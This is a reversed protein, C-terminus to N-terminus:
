STDTWRGITQYLLKPDIPKTVYDNMGAEICQDLSSRMANATMAIVPLKDMGLKGRILRTAKLGDMVPMQMDMLILDFNNHKLKAIAEEGNGAVQVIINVRDLLAVALTQNIENDEVLLVKLNDLALSDPRPKRILLYIKDREFQRFVEQLSGPIDESYHQEIERDQYLQLLRSPSENVLVVLNVQKLEHLQSLDSENLVSDSILNLIIYDWSVDLQSGLQDLPCTKLNGTQSTLWALVPDEKDEGQDLYLVKMGKQIAVPGTELEITFYFSTGKSEESELRIKGNMLEVLEKTITLGLGSGGYKRTTSTDAQTFSAFLSSQQEHPIGIGTDSVKFDLKCREGDQGKLSVAVRIEGKRTFKVANNVLNILIQSIRLPDGMLESPINDDYDFVLDIGKDETTRAFMSHVNVFLSQLNVPRMELNLKGAEMRSFDLIDNVLSLMNDSSQQIYKLHKKQEEISDSNLALQTFGTIANLPTRIEHSMNALFERKAEDAAIATQKSIRDENVKNALLVSLLFFMGIFEFDGIAESYENMPIVGYARLMSYLIGVFFVVTVILHVNGRGLNLRAARVSVILMAVPCTSIILLGLWPSYQFLPFFILVSTIAMSALLLRNLLRSWTAVQSLTWNLWGISLVLLVVSIRQMEVNLYPSDPWVYQFAIGTQVGHWLGVCIAIFSANLFIPERTWLYAVTCFAILTLVAGYILGLMLGDRVEIQNLSQFTKLKPLLAIMNRSKIKVILEHNGPMMKVPFVFNRHIVPRAEFKKDAGTEYVELQEGNHFHYFTVETPLSTGLDFYREYQQRGPLSSTTRLDFKLWLTGQVFGFNSTAQQLFKGGSYVDGITLSIHTDDGALKHTNDIYYQVNSELRYVAQDEILISALLPSISFFVLITGVIVTRFILNRM